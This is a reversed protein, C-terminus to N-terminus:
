HDNAQLGRLEELGRRLDVKSETSLRTHGIGHSGRFAPIDLARGVNSPAGVQKVLELHRGLSVIELGHEPAEVRSCFDAVGAKRNLEIRVMGGAIHHRRIDAVSSVLGLADLAAAELDRGEPLRVWCVEGDRAPQGILALGASDPGRQGLAELMTLLVSGVAARDSRKDLYGAIGCM